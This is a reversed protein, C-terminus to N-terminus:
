DIRGPLAEILVVFLNAPDRVMAVRLTSNGAPLALPRGGTSVVEGGSREVDPGRRRLHLFAARACADLDERTRAVGIRELACQKRLRRRNPYPTRLDLAVRQEASRGHLGFADRDGQVVLVPASVAPLYTEIPDAAHLLAPEHRGAKCGSGSVEM